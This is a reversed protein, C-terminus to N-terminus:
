RLANRLAVQTTLRRPVYANYTNGGSTSVQQSTVGRITLM